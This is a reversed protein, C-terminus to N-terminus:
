RWIKAPYIHTGFAPFIFDFLARNGARFIWAASPFCRTSPSLCLYMRSYTHWRFVSHADTNSHDSDEAPFTYDSFSESSPIINLIDILSSLRILVQWTSPSPPQPLQIFLPGSTLVAFPGEKNSSPLTHPHRQLPHPPPFHPRHVFIFCPFTPCILSSGLPEWFGWQSVELLATVDSKYKVLGEQAPTQWVPKSPSSILHLSILAQISVTAM